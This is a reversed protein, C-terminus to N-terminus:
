RWEQFPSSTPTLDFDTLEQLGGLLSERPAELGAIKFSMAIKIKTERVVRYEAVLREWEEDTSDAKRCVSDAYDILVARAPRNAPAFLYNTCNLDGHAVGLEGLQQVTDLLSQIIPATLLGPDIDLLDVADNIHELMIIHPNFARPIDTGSLDLDGSGYFAPVGHGQLPRLRRYAEVEEAHDSCMRLFYFEEWNDMGVVDPHPFQCWHTLQGKHRRYGELEAAYSWPQDDDDPGRRKLFRPDYIKLIFVTGTPLQFAADPAKSSLRAVIVQSSTFPLMPRVVVARVAGAPDGLEISLEAGPKLYAPCDSQDADMNAM